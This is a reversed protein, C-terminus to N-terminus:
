FATLSIVVFTIFITFINLYISCAGNCDVLSFSKLFDHGVYARYHRLHEPVSNDLLVLHAISYFHRVSIAFKGAVLQSTADSFILDHFRESQFMKHTFAESYQSGYFQQALLFLNVYAEIHEKPRNAHTVLANAAM